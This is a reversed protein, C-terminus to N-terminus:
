KIYTNVRGKVKDNLKLETEVLGGKWVRKALECKLCVWSEFYDFHSFITGNEYFEKYNQGNVFQHNCKTM